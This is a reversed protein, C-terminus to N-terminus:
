IIKDFEENLDKFYRISPNIIKRKDLIINIAETPTNGYKRIIYYAVISVSRSAGMFCHVLINRDPHIENQRTIIDYSQEFYQTIKEIGDDQIKYQMYTIDYTFHNSIDPTINLIMGINLKKLQDLNAANYASGIYINDVVLTPESLFATYADLFSVTPFLRASKQFYLKSFNQYYDYTSDCIVKYLANINNININIYQFM